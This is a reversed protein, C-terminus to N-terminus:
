KIEKEFIIRQESFGLKKYFKIGNDNFSWCCLEVRKCHQEKALNYIEIILRKGYGKNRYSSDIVIEDIWMTKTAKNQIEVMAFGIIQPNNDIALIYKDHDNIADILKKKLEQPKKSNFIDKRHQYHIDFGEIYLNLLNNEIDQKNAQRILM